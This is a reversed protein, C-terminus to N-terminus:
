KDRRGRRLTHVRHEDTIVVVFDDFQDHVHAAVFRHTKATRSECEVASVVDVIDFGQFQEGGALLRPDRWLSQEALRAGRCLGDLKAAFLGELAPRVDEPQRASELRAGIERVVDPRHARRDLRGRPEDLGDFRVGPRVCRM